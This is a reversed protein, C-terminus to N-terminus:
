EPSPAKLQFEFFLTVLLYPSRVSVNHACGVLKFIIPLRELFVWCPRLWRFAFSSLEGLQLQVLSTMM